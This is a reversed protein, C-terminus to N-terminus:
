GFCFVEEVVPELEGVRLSEGEGESLPLQQLLGEVAGGLRWGLRAGLKEVPFAPSLSM